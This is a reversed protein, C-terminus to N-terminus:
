GVTAERIRDHAIELTVGAGSSKSRLLEAERLAPILREPEELESAAFAAESDIPGGAVAVVELLRRSPGDLRLIRRVVLQDLAATTEGEALSAGHVMQGLYFPSGAAGAAFADAEAPDLEDGLLAIALARADD